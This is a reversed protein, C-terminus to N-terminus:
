HGLDIIPTPNPERAIGNFGKFTASTPLKSNLEQAGPSNGFKREVAVKILFDLAIDACSGAGALEAFPAVDCSKFHASTPVNAEDHLDLEKWVLGINPFSRPCGRGFRYRCPLRVQAWFEIM